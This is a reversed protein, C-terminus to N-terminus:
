ELSKEIEQFSVIPANENIGECELAALGWSEEDTLNEPWWPFTRCQRPRAQYVQCKNDKLFICDYDGSQTKKEVLAFRNDKQRIYKMKFMKLSINLTTAMEAMEEESVWVYGSTGTCCKGCGTCEFRLGEKYWPLNM